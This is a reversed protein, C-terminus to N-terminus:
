GEALSQVIIALVQWPYHRKMFIWNGTRSNKM